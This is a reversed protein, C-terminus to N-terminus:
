GLALSAQSYVIKRRTSPLPEGFRMHTLSRIPIFGAAVLLEAGSQNAGPTQTTLPHAGAHAIVWALLAHAAAPSTALWPGIAYGGETQLVLYGQLAGTTDRALRVLAPDDALFSAVVRERRAGYGRADCAVIEAFDEQTYPLLTIESKGAIEDGPFGAERRWITVTDDTTFGLREYLPKGASSADLLIRTCGAGAGVAMLARMLASAIGQRQATPDTAVLGIYGVSEMITIGGVGVTAGDREIILWGDPQLALQRRLRGVYTHPNAYSVQLLHDIAPFDVETMVRITPAM